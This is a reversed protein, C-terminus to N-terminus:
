FPPPYRVWGTVGGLAGPVLELAMWAERGGFPSSLAAALKASFGFRPYFDPHGLVVVIRHGQDRCAALGKLFMMVGEFEDESVPALFLDDTIQMDADNVVARHRELTARDILHGGKVCVVEGRALPAAAYLGRGAIGSSKVVTKPSLYSAVKM